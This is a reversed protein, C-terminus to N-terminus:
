SRAIQLKVVEQKPCTQVSKRHLSVEVYTEGGSEINVRHMPQFVVGIEDDSIAEGNGAHEVYNPVRDPDELEVM